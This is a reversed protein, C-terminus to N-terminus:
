TSLFIHILAVSFMSDTLAGLSLEGIILPHLLLPLHPPIHLYKLNYPNWRRNLMVKTQPVSLLLLYSIYVFSPIRLNRVSVSTQM